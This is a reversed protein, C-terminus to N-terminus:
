MRKNQNPSICNSEFDLMQSCHLQIVITTEMTGEFNVYHYSKVNKAGAVFSNKFM